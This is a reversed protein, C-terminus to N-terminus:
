YFHIADLIREGLFLQSLPLFVEKASGIQRGGADFPRPESSAQGSSAGTQAPGCHAAKEEKEQKKWKQKETENEKEDKKKKRKRINYVNWQM